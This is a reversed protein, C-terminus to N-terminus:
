SAFNVDLASRLSARKSVPVYAAKLRFPRDKAM